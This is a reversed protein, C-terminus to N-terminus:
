WGGKDILRQGIRSLAVFNDWSEVDLKFPRNGCYKLEEDYDWSALYWYNEKKLDWQVINLFHSPNRSYAKSVRLELDGRRIKINPESPTKDALELESEAFWDAQNNEFVVLVNDVKNELVRLVEAPKGHVMVKDGSSFTM